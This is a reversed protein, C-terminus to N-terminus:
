ANGSDNEPKHKFWWWKRAKIPYRNEIWIVQDDRDLVMMEDAYALPRQVDDVAITESESSGWNGGQSSGGQSSTFGLSVSRKKITTMGCLHEAYKATEYDRSGFYQLFGANSVFSQWGKEGYLSMLQSFDQVITWLQVGLGAMTAYATKVIELKGLSAFEDLIVRVPPRNPDAPVRMLPILGATVMLRLWRHYTPIRDLPLTLYVTMGDERKMDAFDFDSDSLSDRIVPTDLFHTNSQAVSIVSSREKPHKQMIRYASSKVIPHVSLTMRYLIEDFTGALAQKLAANESAEHALQAAPDNADYDAKTETVPHEVPPLCLIDRVRGLNRSGEEHDDTVVYLIIGYTLAKGEEDWFKEGKSPIMMADALQMADTALDPSDPDLQDLPNYRALYDPSIGDGFQDAECSIGWPDVVYVSGSKARHAATRRANEGKPDAVVMSSTSRLLNPIIATAGKGSRTPATTLGHMDGDYVISQQAGDTGLFVGPQPTTMSHWSARAQLLGWSLLDEGTAWRSTGFALAHKTAPTAQVFLAAVVSMGVMFSLVGTGFSAISSAGINRTSEGWLILLVISAGAILWGHKTLLIRLMAAAFSILGGAMFGGVAARITMGHTPNRYYGSFENHGALADVIYTVSWDFLGFLQREFLLGFGVVGVIIMDKTSLSRVMRILKGSGACTRRWLIRFLGTLASLILTIFPKMILEQLLRM